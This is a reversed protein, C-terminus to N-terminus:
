SISNLLITRSGAPPTFRYGMFTNVVSASSLAAATKLPHDVGAPGFVFDRLHEHLIETTLLVAKGHPAEEIADM